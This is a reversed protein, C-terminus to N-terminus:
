EKDRQKKTAENIASVAVNEGDSYCHSYRELTMKVSSHGLRKSIVTIPVGLHILMSAHSHRLDHIRIRKVGAKKTSDLFHNKVSTPSLPIEGGFFFSGTTKQKSTYNLYEEIQETMIDPLIITRNSTSTKPAILEYSINKNGTKRTLTKRVNICYNGDDLKYVDNTQLALAEGIRCGSYFLMMFLTKWLIDEVHEYFLEFEDIEWFKMEERMEKRKPKPVNKYVNTINHINECYNLFTMLVTRLKTLYKQSYQRGTKTNVEAWREAQWQSLDAKTLDPIYSDKFYPTIYKNITWEFDVYSSVALESKRNLLYEKMLSAYFFHENRGDKKIETTRTPPTYDKMFDMYAQQAARKNPYGCLRKQVEVGTDNIIRFRVDIVTGNKTQRKTYSPM